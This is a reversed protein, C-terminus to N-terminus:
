AERAGKAAEPCCLRLTVPTSRGRLALRSSRIPAGIGSLIEGDIAEGNGIQEDGRDDESQRQDDAELEIIRLFPRIASSPHARLRRVFGPHRLLAAAAAGKNFRPVLASSM